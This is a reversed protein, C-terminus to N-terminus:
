HTAASGLSRRDGFRCGMHPCHSAIRERKMPEGHAHHIPTWWEKGAGPRALSDTAASRLSRRDGFRCDMRPCHSAIRERKMPQGHAHRIPTWWEKGAGPPHSPIGEWTRVYRLWTRVYRLQLHVYRLQLHVYRLWTRVYRLQLHVYRPWTRVYRLQLHVYRLWIRVYRLQLHVYRLWTRM